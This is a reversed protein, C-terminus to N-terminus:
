EKAGQCAFGSKTLNYNGKRDDCDSRADFYQGMLGVLIILVFISAVFKVLGWM